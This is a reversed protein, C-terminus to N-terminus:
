EWLVRLTAPSFLYLGLTTCAGGVLHEWLLGSKCIKGDDIERNQPSHTPLVDKWLLGYAAGLLLGSSMSTIVGRMTIGGLQEKSMTELRFNHADETEQKTPIVNRFDLRTRVLILM